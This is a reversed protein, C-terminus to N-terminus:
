IRGITKTFHSSSPHNETWEILKQRSQQKLELISYKYAMMYLLFHNEPGLAIGKESLLRGTSDLLLDGTWKRGYVQSYCWSLVM